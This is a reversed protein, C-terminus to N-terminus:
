GLQRAVVLGVMRATAPGLDRWGAVDAELTALAGTPFKERLGPLDEGGAALLLGLDQLGPNHGIVMVSAVDDPLDRLRSLLRDEDAAYLADEAEISADELVPRIAELTEVARRASSCLVVEPRIKAVRLHDAIRRAAKRGRPALPREADPLSPDDWSSKGHRLLYIRKM